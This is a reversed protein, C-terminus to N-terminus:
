ILHGPGVIAIIAPQTLYTQAVRQIDQATVARILEPLRDIDELSRGLVYNTGIYNAQQFATELFISRRGLINLKGEELEQESVPTDMLKQCEITFGQLCKDKNAPDTGIYLSFQGGHRYSEYGSRVTYALGQKDRLEVFLRSSLGGAGLITNLLALPYYDPHSAHPAIWGKLIHTQNVDERACSVVKEETLRYNMLSSFRSLEKDPENDVKEQQPFFTEIKPILTELGINGSVSFIFRSTQYLRTYLSKATEVSTMRPMNELVISDAYGYPTDTYLNRVFLDAARSRPSDLDMQIEGALKIKEREFEVLTSRYLFDAILELSADLDEELFTASLVSFDRRTDIDVDLTLSDITKSIAEQSRTLTGKLLLRDTLDILGPVPDALNGGAIYIHFAIRPALENLCYLLTAQNNLTHKQTAILTATTM